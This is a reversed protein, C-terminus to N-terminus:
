KNNINWCSCVLNEFVKNDQIYMSIENYFDIFEEINLVRSNKRKVCNNYEVFIELCELFDGYVEDATKKGNIVDPHNFNNFCNKLQKIRVNGYIDKQFLNFVVKLLSQRINNMKGVIAKFFNNYFICGTKNKDFLDFLCKIDNITMNLDYTKIIINLNNFTIEGSYFNLDYKTLMRQFYFISKPGREILKNRFKNLIIMGFNYKDKLKEEELTIIKSNISNPLIKFKVNKKLRILNNQNNNNNLLYRKNDNQYKLFTNNYPIIKSLKQNKNMPSSINLLNYKNNYDNNIDNSFNTLNNSMNFSNKKYNYLINKDKNNNVNNIPTVNKNLMLPSSLSRSIIKNNNEINIKKDICNENNNRIVFSNNKFHFNNKIVYNQWVGNIIKSFYLDDNISPSIGSYYDIFQDCNISNGICNIKLYIEFTFLFQNYIENETFKKNQCDPHYKSKYFNKIFYVPVKNENNIIELFSQFKDYLLKKRYESINGKIINLFKSTSIYGTDNFDLFSYLYLLERQSFILGLERFIYNLYNISIKDGTISNNKMKEALKYYITGNDINIKSRFINIINNMYNKFYNNSFKNKADNLNLSINLNYYKNTLCLNNNFPKSGPSNTYVFDHKQISIINNPDTYIIPSKNKLSNNRGNNNCQLYFPINLINYSFKKYNIFEKNGESYINFLTNFDNNSFGLLGIKIIPNIWNEKNVYGILENDFFKFSNILLKLEDKTSKARQSLKNKLNYEFSIQLKSKPSNM